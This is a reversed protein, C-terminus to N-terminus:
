IYLKDFEPIWRKPLRKFKLRVVPKRNGKSDLGYKVVEYYKRRRNSIPSDHPEYITVDNKGFHWMGRPESNHWMSLYYFYKNFNEKLYKEAERRYGKIILNGKEKTYVFIMCYAGEYWNKQGDPRVEIVPYKNNTGRLLKREYIKVAERYCTSFGDVDKISKKEESTLERLLRLGSKRLFIQWAINEIEESKKLEAMSKDLIEMGTKSVKIAISSDYMFSKGGKTQLEKKNEM